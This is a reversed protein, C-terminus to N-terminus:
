DSDKENKTSNTQESKPWKLTMTEGIALTRFVQESLNNEDLAQKLLLPPEAPAEATLPFTGWHIGVSQDAGIDEHIQLAEQPNVHMDKMFSRPAYAGIPILGLDINAFRRGIEVFQVPNYGTDGGFWFSFDDIRVLWSAWLTEYRDTLGRGSWHQSPTAAVKYGSAQHTQWWDFETVSADEGAEEKILDALGMPVAWHDVKPGLAHISARDLHDYHNHSIVVLDIDPLQDPNVAPRTIRRPGAFSLPSARESFIPDTLVNIDKYQVLVTSHGIWTLRPRDTAAENLLEASTRTTKITHALAPWDAWKQDGFFRTKLFAALRHKETDVHTNSYRPRAGHDQWSCACLTLCLASILLLRPAPFESPHKM